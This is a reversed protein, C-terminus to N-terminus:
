DAADLQRLREQPLQYDPALKLAQRYDARAQETRGSWEAALGRYFYARIHLPYIGIALDFHRYAQELSDLELYLLGANYYAEEYQPDIVSIRRYIDLAEPLRNQDTLYGAKAHLAEVNEPGIEVATDFYRSAIRNGLSAHLQGLNIWADILGPDLETAQQFSNVARATDGAEKLNMGLLFYAMGNQADIRLIRDISGMSAEHQKLILQFESLKLLTPIRGPYLRAAREMTQLAERSQLYDLQVDALLHLYEVNASDLTLARKLDQIAEDFGENRYYLAARAAFLSPDAPNRAIKASLDDIAPMGTRSLVLSEPPADGDSERCGSSLAFLLLTFITVLKHDKM